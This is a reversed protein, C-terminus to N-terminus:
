RSRCGPSSVPSTDVPSTCARRTMLLGTDEPTSRRIHPLTKLPPLRCGCPRDHKVPVGGYLEKHEESSTTSSWAGTTALGLRILARATSFDGLLSPALLSSILAPFSIESIGEGM